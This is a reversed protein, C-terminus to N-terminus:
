QGCAVCTVSGCVFKLGQVVCGADWAGVSQCSKATWATGGDATSTLEYGSAGGQIKAATVSKAALNATYVVLGKTATAIPAHFLVLLAATALASIIVTKNM